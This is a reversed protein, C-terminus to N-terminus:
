RLLTKVDKFIRLGPVVPIWDDPKPDDPTNPHFANGKNLERLVDARRVEINCLQPYLKVFAAVDKVEFDFLERATVGRVTPAAIVPLPTADLEARMKAIEADEVDEKTASPMAQVNELAVRAKEAAQAAERQQQEIRAQAERQKDLERRQYNNIAGQLQACTKEIDALFEREREILDKNLKTIPRSIALRTEEVSKKIAKADDYCRKCLKVDADTKLIAPVLSAAEIAADRKETFTPSTVIKPEDFTGTLTLATDNM